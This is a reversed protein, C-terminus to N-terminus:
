VPVSGAVTTGEGPASRVELTGGLATIRDTMNQIGAGGAPEFGSGDDAVEFVLTGDREAIGVRAAAGQGAHKAANQLAELCCFYVAAELEPAYRGAGDCDVEVRMAAHRAAEGLAGPLGDSELAQPYIGHALDRLESIALEADARIEPLAAAAATPDHEALREAQGLKLAILVLRQQAGDHLDREVRRRADDAAAVIRVRSKQLEQEHRRLSALMRNFGSALTGLEDGAVVPVPTEIDGESVRRTAAVLDGIPELVTQTVFWFVVGAATVTGLGIAIAVGFQAPGRKVIDLWAGTMLAAFLTVPLLPVLAKGGLSPVRASPEFDAPLYPLIDRVVPRLAVGAGFMDLVMGALLAVLGSAYIGVGTWVGLGDLASTAAAAPVGLGVALLLIRPGLAWPIRIAATWAEEAHEPSPQRLWLLVPRLESPRALVIVVAPVMIGSAVGVAVGIQGISLKLYRGVWVSAIALTVIGLLLATVLIVYMYREGGLREYLRTVLRQVVGADAPGAM